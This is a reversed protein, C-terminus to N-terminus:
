FASTNNGARQFKIFLNLFFIHGNRLTFKNYMYFIITLKVDPVQVSIRLM